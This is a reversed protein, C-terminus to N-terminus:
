SAFTRAPSVIQWSQLVASIKHLLTLESGWLATIILLMKWLIHTVGVTLGSPSRPAGPLAGRLWECKIGVTCPVLQTGEGLAQKCM